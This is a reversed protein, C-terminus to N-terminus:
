KGRYLELPHDTVDHWRTRNSRCLNVHLYLLLCTLTVNLQVGGSCYCNCESTDMCKDYLGRLQRVFQPQDDDSSNIKTISKYLNIQLKAELETFVSAVSEQQDFNNETLYQGCSFTYFDDCPDVSDDMSDLFQKARDICM